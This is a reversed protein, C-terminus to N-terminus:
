TGRRIVADIVTVGDPHVFVPNLEVLDLGEELAMAGVTAAVEALARIDSAPRGRGGVLLPAARLRRVAQEVRDADAPLPILVVDDFIEVWVGGLAVVLVPVVGDRRVAILVEVGPSVMEEVLVVGGLGEVRRYAERVADGEVGLVLASIDSKHQIFPSSVKLAVPGGLEGAVRMADDVDRVVRGRPVALGRGVLMEKAEHEAVWGSHSSTESSDGTWASHNSTESSDGTWASHNSTESSDGTWASHNSAEGSGGTWASHGSTESSDGARGSHGSAEGPCKHTRAPSELVGGRNGAASTPGSSATATPKPRITSMTAAISRLRAADPPPVTLAGACLIGESLGAVAVIGHEALREATDEPMLEPLTSAVIVPQDLRSAALIVGDLAGNWSEAADETMRAPRDYYVLVPGIADDRAGVTILDATRETEGFIVATYDLPNGATATSPLVEGLAAVTAAGLQPLWVGLREAEDAATAADGGSCTVVLVGVNTATYKGGM